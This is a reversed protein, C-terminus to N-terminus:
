NNQYITVTGSDENSVILLDKKSPSDKAAVALVGEPAEDGEHSLIQIFQPNLPDTIEFVLVQDTRELGVFLLQRNGNVQLTEISEPEAGKDDSRGDDDNFRDPTLALTIEAILNGSDYLLEGNPSWISFSRAGYSYLEEYDGDGDLDGLTTTSNLRGLNEDQQLIEANPFAVPDLQLDKIRVEESFGDYDRADGENASILYAAGRLKFYKIADPQYMGYVPWTKLAKEGDRNSADLSNEPLSHDKFGLPYIAEMSKTELNIKAIGNNEQLSVWAFRSDESIAVYEPETDAALDAGPGFVRYGGLALESAQDNFASFDLNTITGTHVEIITVSGDPDVTYDDNPEGENAVVLFKGNPSFSLMDPLAGVQYSQLLDLSKADYVYIKGPNQKNAAEVAVAVKGHSVAVSNPSGGPISIPELKKPHQVDSLDFVSIQDEAPNVTFIRQSAPDFASIEASAEGGVQISSVPHFHIESWSGGANIENVPSPESFNEQACSFLLLSGALVLPITIKKM